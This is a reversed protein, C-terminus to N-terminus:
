RHARPRSAPGSLTGTRRFGSRGKRKQDPLARPAIGTCTQRCRLVDVHDPSALSVVPGALSCVLAHHAAVGPAGLHELCGRHSDGADTRPPVPGRSWTTARACFRATSRPPLLETPSTRHCIRSLSTLPFQRRRPSRRVVEQWQPGLQRQREHDATVRPAPATTRCPTTRRVERPLRQTGCRAGAMERALEKAGGGVRNM